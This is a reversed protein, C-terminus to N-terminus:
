GHMKNRIIQVSELSEFDMMNLNLYDMEDSVSSKKSIETNEFSSTM